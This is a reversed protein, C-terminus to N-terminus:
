LGFDKDFTLKDIVKQVYDKGGKTYQVLVPTRNGDRCQPTPDACFNIPGAALGEYNTTSALADRIAERDAALSDPTLKLKAKALAAKVIQALDWAGAFDADPLAVGYRTKTMEVFKKAVPRDDFPTFGFSFILGKIDDGALNPTTSVGANSQAVRPVSSPIGVENAQALMRAMEVPVGSMAIVEPKLSKMKLFHSRYDNENESVQVSFVPDVKYAEKMYDVMSKAFSQSALDTTYIYAVKKGLKEGVYKGVVAKYFRESISVRFVWASKKTTIPIATSSPTIHPVKARATVDVIPLTVASCTSGILLDVKTENILKIANQVGVDAKCEDNLLTVEVKHGNIGGAKNVDDFQDVLMKGIKLGDESVMRISVGIRIPQSEAFTAGTMSVVAAGIVAGAMLARGFFKM